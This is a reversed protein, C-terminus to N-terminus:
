GRGNNIEWLASRVATAINQHAAPSNRLPRSVEIQMGKGRLGRNCINEPNVGAYREANNEHNINRTSLQRCTKEILDTDLGGVYIVPEVHMCGHVTVVVSSKRVLALAEPQNFRHSTIHLDRNCGQKLGNFCFLNYDDAAILLAIETTNPEIRGGHPAIVTVDSSRDRCITEFATESAALDRFNTYRDM